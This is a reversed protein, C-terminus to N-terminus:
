KEGGGRSKLYDDLSLKPAAPRAVRAQSAPLTARVEVRGITVHITPEVQANARLTAPAAVTATIRQSIIPRVTEPKELRPELTIRPEIKQAPAAPKKEAIPQLQTVASVLRTISTQPTVIAVPEKLVPRISEAPMRLEPKHNTPSRSTEEDDREQNMSHAVVAAIPSAPSLRHGPTPGDPEAPQHKWTSDPAHIEIQREIITESVLLPAAPVNQASASEARPASPAPNEGSARFTLRDDAPLSQSGRDSRIEQELETETLMPAGSRAPQSPKTKRRHFFEPKAPPAIAGSDIAPLRGSTEAPSDQTLSEEELTPEHLKRDIPMITRPSEFVAPRRRQLVPARGLARNVLSTLFDAPQSTRAEVGRQSDETM